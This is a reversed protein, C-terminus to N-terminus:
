CTRRSEKYSERPDPYILEQELNRFDKCHRCFKRPVGNGIWMVKILHYERCKPCLCRTMIEGDM